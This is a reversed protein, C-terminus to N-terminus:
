AERVIKGLPAHLDRNAALINGSDLPDGTGSITTVIGGAEKVIVIGAAIDWANLGTEWYGDYRGAAVYALDLAAAGFRRIGSSVKMVAAMETLLKEHGPRGAFPIGTAFLAEHMNQRASVRLRRDNLFAGAGKEAWFLEDRVPEYIVGAVIEGGKEAGISICFHPLGHLFNTTGDLPDVIWRGEPEQGEGIAAATVGSEEMLFSFRPRAKGLEQKLVKEAKLDATSVFDAVGKRSVQLQEVEGFDRVLGRAAKYAANVMVNILPSRVAM